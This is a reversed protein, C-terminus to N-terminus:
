TSPGPCFKYKMNEWVGGKDFPFPKDPDYYMSWHGSDKLTRNRASMVLYHVALPLTSGGACGTFLALGLAIISKWDEGFSGVAMAYVSFSFVVGCSICGLLVFYTFYRWTREGVCIGLVGCHHDFGRVCYDCQTCHSTQPPRVIKCTQCYRRIYQVDQNPGVNEIIDRPYLQVNRLTRPQDYVETPETSSPIEIGPDSNSGLLAVVLMALYLVATVVITAGRVSDSPIMSSVIVWYSGFPILIAGMIVYSACSDHTSLCKGNCRVISNGHYLCRPDRPARYANSYSFPSPNQIIPNSITSTTDSSTLPVTSETTNNNM